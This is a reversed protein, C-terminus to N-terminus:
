STKLKPIFFVAVLAGISFMAITFMAQELGYIDGIRGIVPAFLGGMSITLGFLVGSAMGIHNPMFSQGTVVLPSNAMSLALPILLILITAVLPTRNLVFFFLLPAIAVCCTRFIRRFGFTDALKGGLLTAIIGAAAFISLHMNGEATTSMFVGIWFLPIFTM